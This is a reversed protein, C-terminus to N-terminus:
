VAGPRNTFTVTTQRQVADTSTTMIMFPEENIEIWQSYRYAYAPVPFGTTSEMPRDFPITATGSIIPESYKRLYRSRVALAQQRSMTGGPILASRMLGGHDSAWGRISDAGTSAQQGGPPTFQVECGGILKSWDQTWQVRSDGQLRYDPLFRGASDLPPTMPRSVVRRDEWIAYSYDTDGDGGTKMLQDISQGLYRASQERATFSGGPDQFQESDGPQVISTVQRIMRRLLSGSSMPVDDPGKPATGTGTGSSSTTPLPPVWFWQDGFVGQATGYGAAILATVKTSNNSDVKQARGSFCCFGDESGAYLRADALPPVAIPSELPRPTISQASLTFGANIGVFGGPGTTWSLNTMDPNIDIWSVRTGSPLPNAIVM